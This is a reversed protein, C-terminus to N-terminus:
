VNKVKGDGASFRYLSKVAFNGMFVAVAFVPIIFAITGVLSRPLVGLLYEDLIIDVLVPAPHDMLEKDMTYYAAIGSIRLLVTSSETNESTETITLKHSIAGGSAVDSATFTHLWWDSPTKM